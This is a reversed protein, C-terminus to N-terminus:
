SFGQLLRARSRSGLSRSSASRFPLTSTGRLREHYHKLVFLVILCVRGGVYVIRSYKTKFGQASHAPEKRIHSEKLRSGSGCADYIFLACLCRERLYAQDMLSKKVTVLALLFGLRQTEQSGSRPRLNPRGLETRPRPPEWLTGPSDWAEWPKSVKVRASTESPATCVHGLTQDLGTLLKNSGCKLAAFAPLPRM